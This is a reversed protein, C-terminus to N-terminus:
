FSGSDCSSSGSDYSSTDCSPSAEYYDFSSGTDTAVINNTFNDVWVVPKNHKSYDCSMKHAGGKRVKCIRCVTAM